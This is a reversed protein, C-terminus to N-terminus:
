IKVKTPGGVQVLWTHMIVHFFFRAVLRKDDYNNNNNLLWRIFYFEKQFLYTCDIVIISTEVMISGKSSQSTAVGRLTEVEYKTVCM